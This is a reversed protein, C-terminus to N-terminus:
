MLIPKKRTCGGVDNIDKYQFQYLIDDQTTFRLWTGISISLINTDNSNFTRCTTETTNNLLINLYELILTLIINCTHRDRDNM